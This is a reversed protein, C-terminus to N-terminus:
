RIKTRVRLQMLVEIAGATPTGTFTVAVLEPAYVGAATRSQVLNATNVMTFAVFTDAAVPGTGAGIELANTILIGADSVDVGNAVRKLHVTQSSVTGLTTVRIQAHDVVLDRDAMFLGVHNTATGAALHRFTLIQSDDKYEQIPLPREGPM